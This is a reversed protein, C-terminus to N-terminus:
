EMHNKRVQSELSLSAEKSELPIKAVTEKYYAQSQSRFRCASNQIYM